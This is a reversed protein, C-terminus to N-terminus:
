IAKTYLFWQNPNILKRGWNKRLGIISEERLEKIRLGLDFM